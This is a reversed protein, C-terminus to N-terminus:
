GVQRKVKNMTLLAGDIKAIVRPDYEIHQLFFASERLKLQVDAIADETDGLTEIPM